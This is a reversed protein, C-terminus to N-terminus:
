NDSLRAVSCDNEYGGFENQMGTNVVAGNELDVDNSCLYQLFNAAENHASQFVFVSLNSFFFFILDQEYILTIFYEWRANLSGEEFHLLICPIIVLHIILFCQSKLKLIKRKLHIFLINNCTEWPYLIRWHDLLGLYLGLNLWVLVWFFHYNIGSQKVSLM